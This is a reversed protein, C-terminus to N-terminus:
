DAAPIELWNNSPRRCLYKYSRLWHRCSRSRSWPCCLPSVSGKRCWPSMKTTNWVSCPCTELLLAAPSSRPSRWFYATGSLSDWSSSPSWRSVKSEFTKDIVGSRNALYGTLMLLFLSVMQNFVILMTYLSGKTHNGPFTKLCPHRLDSSVPIHYPIRDNM